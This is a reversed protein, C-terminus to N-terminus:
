DPEMRCSSTLTRDVDTGTLPIACVFMEEANNWDCDCLGICIIYMLYM